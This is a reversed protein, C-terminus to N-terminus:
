PVPDASAGSGDAHIVVQAGPAIGVRTGDPRFVWTNGPEHVVLNTGRASALKQFFAFCDACMVRDVALPKGPNEIAALKEAHSAKEQGPVGGDLSQNKAFEHGIDKATDMVQRTGEGGGVREGFGSRVVEGEATASKTKVSLPKGLRAKADEAERIMARDTENLQSRLVPARRPPAQEVEPMARTNMGKRVGGGGGVYSRLRDGSGSKALPAPSDSAPTAKQAATPATVETGAAATKIPDAVLTTAPDTVAPETAVTPRQDTVSGTDGGRLPPLALATGLMGAGLARTANYRISRGANFAWRQGPTVETSPSAASLIGATALGTGGALLAANTNGTFAYTAAYNGGGGVALNAGARLFPNGINSAGYSLPGTLLSTGAALGGAQLIDTGSGGALATGSTAGAVNGITNAATFRLLNGATSVGPAGLGLAGGVVRTTAGGFGIGFGTAGWHGASGEIEQWSGGALATSGGGLLAGGGGVVAGTGVMTLGGALLGPAGVLGLAGAAVVPAALIAAISLAVTFAIDRTIELATVISGAASIAREIGHEMERHAFEGREAALFIQRAKEELSGNAPIARYRGLDQNSEQIAPQVRNWVEIPEEGSWVSVAFGVYPQEEYNLRLHSQGRGYTYQNQSAIRDAAQNFSQLISARQTEVEHNALVIMESGHMLYSMEPHDPLPHISDIKRLSELTQAQDGGGQSPAIAAAVIQARRQQAQQTRGQNLQTTLNALEINLIRRDNPPLDKHQLLAMINDAEQRMEEPSSYNITRQEAVVRPLPTDAVPAYPVQQQGRGGRAPRGAAGQQRRAVEAQLVSLAGDLRVSEASGSTTQRAQWEQIQDIDSLLESFRLNSVNPTGNLWDEVSAAVGPRAATRVRIPGGSAALVSASQAEQEAAAGQPSDGGGGGRQQQVVHTLEHALLRQGASSEPSPARDPWAIDNGLTFARAGLVHAAARVVPGRHLRVANFDAGFSAQFRERLGPDLATGPTRMAESAAM